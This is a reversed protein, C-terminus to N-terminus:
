TGNQITILDMNAMMDHDPRGDLDIGGGMVKLRFDTDLAPFHGFRDHDFVIHPDPATRDEQWPHPYAPICHHACPCDNGPVNWRIHDHHPIRGPHNSLDLRNGYFTITM